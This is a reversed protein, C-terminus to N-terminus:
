NDIFRVRSQCRIRPLTAGTQDCFAFCWLANKRITNGLQDTSGWETHFNLKKYIKIEQQNLDTGFPSLKYVKDSLISWASRNSLNRMANMPEANSLEFDLLSSPPLPSTVPTEPRLQLAFIIRVRCPLSNTATNDLTCTHQLSKVRVTAGERNAIGTGTGPNFLIMAKWSAVAGANANTCLPINAFDDTRDFSKYEVNVVEKMKGVDTALRQIQRVGRGIRRKRGGQPYRRRNKFQGPKRFYVM